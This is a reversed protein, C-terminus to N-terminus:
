QSIGEPDRQYVYLFGNFILMKYNPLDVIEITM